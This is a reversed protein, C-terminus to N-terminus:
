ETGGDCVELGECGPCFHEGSRHDFAVGCRSCPVDRWHDRDAANRAKTLLEGVHIEIEQLRDVHGPFDMLAKALASLYAFIV